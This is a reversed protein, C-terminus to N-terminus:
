SRDPAALGSAIIDADDQSAGSEIRPCGRIPLSPHYSVTNQHRDRETEAQQGGRLSRQGGLDAQFLGPRAAQGIDVLFIRFTGTLIFAHALALTDGAEPAHSVSRSLLGIVM